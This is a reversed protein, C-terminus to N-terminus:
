PQQPADIRVDKGSFVIYPEMDADESMMNAATVSWIATRGEVRPAGCEVIEGPVTFSMMVDLEGAASMLTGMIEMQKQMAAPDMDAMGELMDEPGQPMDESAATDDDGADAAMPATKLVYNGDGTKFIKLGEDSQGMSSGLVASLGDLHEFAMTISLTSRGQNNSRKFSTIKVGHQKGLREMEDRDIDDLSPPQEDQSGGIAAMEAIAAKVEDSMAYTVMCTGSGDKEIVTETHIQMCGTATLM